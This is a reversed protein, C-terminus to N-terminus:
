LGRNNLMLERCGQYSNDKCPVICMGALDDKKVLDRDFLFM